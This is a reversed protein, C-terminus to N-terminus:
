KKQLSIIIKNEPEFTTQRDPHHVLKNLFNIDFSNAIPNLKSFLTATATSDTMADHANILDIDFLKCMNGLTHSIGPFLIASMTRTCYFNYVKPVLGARLTAHHLFGIDFPANQAVIISDDGLFEILKKIAESEIPADKVKDNTIGTLDAIFESIEREPNVLTEFITTSLNESTPLFTGGNIEIKIAAIQILRELDPKLGTTEFDLFVFKSMTKEGKEKILINYIFTVIIKNM